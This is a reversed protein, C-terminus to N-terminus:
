EKMAETRDILKAITENHWKWDELMLVHGMGPRIYSEAPELGAILKEGHPLTIMADGTGHMVLIRERGVKDALERLQAPSKSHWGAAIAQMVFGKRPFEDPTLRKNVEQAAFREFNSPFRKVGGPPLNVMPTSENPVPGDDPGELWEEAFLNRAANKVSQELSKPIFMNIRTRLNEVYTTTNEIQAATSVLSLSAIRKPIAWAIEQSIMGGM